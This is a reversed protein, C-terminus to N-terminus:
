LRKVVVDKYECRMADELVGVGIGGSTFTKDNVEINKKGNLYGTIKSDEISIRLAYWEDKNPSFICSGLETWKGGVCKYLDIVGADGHIGYRYFNNEDQVRFFIYSKLWDVATNDSGIIKTRVEFVYNQWKNNQILALHAPGSGQAISNSVDWEGRSIIWKKMGNRFDDHFLDDEDFSLGTRIPFSKKVKEKDSDIVLQIVGDTKATIPIRIEKNELSQLTFKDLTEIRGSGAVFKGNITILSKVQSNNTVFFPVDEGEQFKIFIDEKPTISIRDVVWSSMKHEIGNYTIKIECEGEMDTPVQTQFKVKKSHVVQSYKSWPTELTFPKATDAAFDEIMFMLDENKGKILVPPTLRVVKYKKERALYIVSSSLHAPLNLKMTTTKKKFNISNVGQWDGSLLYTKEIDSIDPLNITLPINYEFPHPYLQSKTPNVVVIVYSSDPTKFINGKYMAPIDIPDNTLVWTRNRILDFIPRYKEDLAQCQENGYTISPFAGCALASKLKEETDMPSRDYTLFLLPRVLGMYQTKHLTAPYLEAMIGDLNKCVEIATPGNGWIGKNAAHFISFIQENIKAHAFGLMYAPKNNRMTIGDEHAFDYNWYDMRDYFIGDAEPYKELIEKAQGIIYKGWQNQPDPNMLNTFKWSPLPHGEENRAIDDAYYKRTYQHWAEFVQFYLYVQIGHNQWLKILKRMNEYNNRRDGAGNEWAVLDVVDSDAILGWDRVKPVYLGYFPFYYHLENWKVGRLTMEKIRTGRDDPRGQFYWGEGLKTNLAAPYFYEPYKRLLYAFGLRWDGQHPVVYLAVSTKEGSKVRLNKYSIIINESNSSFTLGPKPMEFPAIVSLGQNNLEDYVSVIPIYLDRRYTYVHSGTDGSRGTVDSTPLFLHYYQSPIPITFDVSIEQETIYRSFMEIHWYLALSDITFQYEVTEMDLVRRLRIKAYHPFSDEKQVIVVRGQKTHSLPIIDVFCDNNTLPKNNLIISTINGTKKSIHCEFRSNSLVLKNNEESLFQTNQINLLYFLFLIAM